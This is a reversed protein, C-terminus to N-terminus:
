PVSVPEGGNVTAMKRYLDLLISNSLFTVSGDALLFNAGGPHFSGFPLWNFMIGSSDVVVNIPYDAVVKATYLGSGDSCAGLIWPRVNGPPVSSGPNGGAGTPQTADIQVWEGMCLTNSLGDTVDAIRRAFKVGFMGNKPVNGNSASATYPAVNPYAGAVGQYTTIAGEQNEYPPSGKPFVTNHPWSPCVYCSVPTFKSPEDFTIYDDIYIPGGVIAKWNLQDSIAGLEIYPLMASFLAHRWGGNSGAPFCEASTLTYNHMALGMQKLNNTCQSRRAAERAAQVAPLLLAILVGIITIVVLLEVLTFGPSKQNDCRM